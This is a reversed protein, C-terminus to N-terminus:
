ANAAGAAATSAGPGPEAPDGDAVHAAHERALRLAADRSLWPPAGVCGFCLTTCVAAGPGITFVVVTLGTPPYGDVDRTPCGPLCPRGAPSGCGGEGNCRPFLGADTVGCSLCAPAQPCRATSM